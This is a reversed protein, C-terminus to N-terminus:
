LIIFSWKNGYSKYNDLLVIEGNKYCLWRLESSTAGLSEIAYNGNELLYIKWRTGSLSSGNYYSDRLTLTGSATKGDLWRTNCGGLSKFRFISPTNQYEYVEWFTGSWGSTTTRLGLSQSCTKGDLYKLTGNDDITIHLSKGSSLKIQTGQCNYGQSFSLIPLFFLLFPIKNM